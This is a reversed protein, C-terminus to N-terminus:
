TQTLRCTLLALWLQVRDQTSHLSRGTLREIQHLRYRITNRHVYLQEAAAQVSCDAALYTHLTVVLDGHHETDFETLPRLVQTSLQRLPLDPNSMLLRPLNLPDGGHVGPGKELAAQAEFYSWRLGDVGPYAGGIGVAAGSNLATLAMRIQQAITNAPSQEPTVAVLYRGAVATLLPEPGDKAASLNWPLRRLRQTEGETAALGGHGPAPCGLIVRHPGDLDIGFAALRREAVAASIVDRVIDEVVQGALERRGALFSQRRGLELGVLRVAFPLVDAATGPGRVRLFGATYGDVDVPLAIEDETGPESWSSREPACALREGHHGIVAVQGHIVRHLARVLAALGEASLLSQALIDHQDVLQRQRSHTEASIREAVLRNVAIFPTAHPVELVPLGLREAATVTAHPVTRHSFGTGFGLGAAGAGAIREVFATQAAATRQRLGTSLVLEGGDMWPTPDSLETIAVWRIVRDLGAPGACVRLALGDEILLDRLVMSMAPSYRHVLRRRLLM